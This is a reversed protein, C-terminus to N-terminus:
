LIFATQRTFYGSDKPLSKIARAPVGGYLMYPEELKKNLLSAASLVSYAPLASGGLVVCATGILSYAGLTIPGSGQRGAVVDVSHSMLQCRFGGVNSFAGLTVSNTCDIIHRNTIGAHEGIILESRRNTEHEFHQGVKSPAPFGTIWNLRGIGADEAMEILDLGKCVNLHSIRSKPGMVLHKPLVFSFGIYSTPHLDYGLVLRLVHRRLVWPLFVSLIGIIRRM